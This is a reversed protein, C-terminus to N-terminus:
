NGSIQSCMAFKVKSRIKCFRAALNTQKPSKTAYPLEIHGEVLNKLILDSHGLKSFKVKSRINSFCSFTIVKKQSQLRPDVNNKRETAFVLVLRTEQAMKRHWKKRHWKEQAMEMKVKAMKVFM